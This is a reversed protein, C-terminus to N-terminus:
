EVAEHMEIETPMDNHAVMDHVATRVHMAKEIVGPVIKEVIYTWIAKIGFVVYKIVVITGKVIISSDKEWADSAKNFARLVGAILMMCLPIAFILNFVNLTVGIGITLISYTFVSLVVVGLISLLGSAIDVALDGKGVAEMIKAQEIEACVLTAVQAATMEVPINDFEGNKVKTYALMAVIARYEIEKNGLDILLGAAEDANEMAELEAAQEALAGLMVGSNKIAEMAQERLEKEREPTAESESIELNEIEQLIQERDAGDEGMAVTASSIAASLKLWYNCREVCTKGEDIKDQFKKLYRDLNEQAEKYDADFDKVSKLISDAMIQGQKLTKDELSEVYIRAIIDRTTQGESINKLIEAAQAALLENQEKTSTTM